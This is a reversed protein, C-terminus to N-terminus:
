LLALAAAGAELEAAHLAEDDLGAVILVAAAAIGNCAAAALFAGTTLDQARTGAPVPESLLDTSAVAAEPAPAAGLARSTGDLGHAERVTLLTGPASGDLAFCTGVRVARRVGLAALDAVIAAASPGGLGTSQITLPLGDAAMGTYGWLGRHHNLMKPADTLAQALRLARGPDGPVLARDAVDTHVRLWALAQTPERAM